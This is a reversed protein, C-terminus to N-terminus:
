TAAEGLDTDQGPTTGGVAPGAAVDGAGQGAQRMQAALDGPTQATLTTPRRAQSLRYARYRRIRALWLVVWGPNERRLRAAERWCAADDGSPQSGGAAPPPVQSVRPRGHEM